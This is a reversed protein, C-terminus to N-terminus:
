DCDPIMDCIYEVFSVYASACGDEDVFSEATKDNLGIMKEPFNGNNEIMAIIEDFLTKNTAVAHYLLEIGMMSLNTNFAYHVFFKLKNPELENAMYQMCVDLLEISITTGIGDGDAFTVYKCLPKLEHILSASVKVPCMHQMDHFHKTSVAICVSGNPDIVPNEDDCILYTDGRDMLKNILAVCCDFHLDKMTVFDINSNDANENIMELIKNNAYDTAIVMEEASCEYALNMASITRGCKQSYDVIHKILKEAKEDKKFDECSEAIPFCM